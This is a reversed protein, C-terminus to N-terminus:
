FDTYEPEKKRKQNILQPCIKLCNHIKLCDRGNKYEVVFCIM